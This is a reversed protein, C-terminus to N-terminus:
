YSYMSLPTDEMMDDMPLDQLRRFEPRSDRRRLKFFLLSAIIIATLIFASVLGALLPDLSPTKNTTVTDGGVNLQAPRGTHAKTQTSTDSQATPKLPATSSAEPHRGSPSSASLSSGSSTSSVKPQTTTPTSATEPQTHQKSTTVSVLDLAATHNSVDSDNTPLTTNGTPDTTTHIVGPTPPLTTNPKLPSPITSSKHGDSVNATGVDTVNYYAPQLSGSSNKIEVTANNSLSSSSNSHTDSIKWAPISHNQNLDPVEARVPGDPLQEASVPSATHLNEDHDAYGLKLVLLSLLPVLVASEM